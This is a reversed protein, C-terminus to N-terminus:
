AVRVKVVSGTRYLEGVAIGGAAAAADDAYNALATLFVKNNALLPAANITVQGNTVQFRSSGGVVFNLGSIAPSYTIYDGNYGDTWQGNSSFNNFYIRQGNKLSIASQNTGFDTMAMAFDIGNKFAGTAAFAQDPPQTGQAQARFGAWFCGLAGGANTRYLNAVWGVGAVDYGGDRLAFEGPNLYVGNAGAQIDGNFLCAAPNALFNTAGARQGTVFASANYCVADGQGAQFVQVRQFAVGTRGSNSNTSQNWGSSNYLYGFFPFAEPRYLYGSTPQGLTAVGTVRHEMAIQTKSLDGNFATEVSDFNGVSSPPSSIASFWPARNNNAADRIQGEGYFPGSLDTSPATIDFIGAPVFKGGAFSNAASIAATDNTIGDGVAGFDTVSVIDRLKTQVTIAVASPAAGIFGVMDSGQANSITPVSTADQVSWVMRGTSTQVTMSFNDANCFIRAPTGNRVAYGNL